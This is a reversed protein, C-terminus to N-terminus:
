VGGKRVPVENNLIKEEQNTYERCANIMLIGGGKKRYISQKNMM